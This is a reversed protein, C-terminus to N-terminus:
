NWNFSTVAALDLDNNSLKPLKNRLYKFCCSEKKLVKM